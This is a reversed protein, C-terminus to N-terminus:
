IIRRRRRCVTHGCHRTEQYEQCPIVTMANFHLQWGDCKSAWYSPESYLVRIHPLGPDTYVYSLIEPVLDKCEPYQDDITKEVARCIEVYTYWM